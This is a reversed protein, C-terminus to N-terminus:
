WTACTERASTTSVPSHSKTRRRALTGVLRPSGDHRESTEAGTRTELGEYPAAICPLISSCRFSGGHMQTVPEQLPKHSSDPHFALYGRVRRTVHHAVLVEQKAM